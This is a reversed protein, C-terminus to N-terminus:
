ISQLCHEPSHEMDWDVDGCATLVTALIYDDVEIGEAQMRYMLKLAERRLGNKAYGVIMSKWSVLNRETMSDFVQFAESIYGCNAYMFVLASGVYVNSFAPTKNLSSHILRGQQINELRACAKLASSYTFPNPEVGEGLMEKLFELAEPEHGLGACVSIMATWSVVDRFPMEQLVKSALSYEMTLNNVYINRRKMIRFLSIAEEGLGNRALGAIISTWTVTNRRRMGDFVETSDAIEGCKAYMDVLSTGIFVDNKFIKKVITGHLQRGFKLEEEDGCANSVSCVTFENPAFGELLMRSFLLFADEGWGLQSCATIITTWSVVDHNPMRDFVRFAGVLDGCKAYLYVISSYNARVGSEIFERFFLLAEDDLESRLYGNLIATWSVVNRISMEDFVKRAEVLDGFRAYSSILNNDVFTGSSKLCKIAIAHLKRVEKVTCAQLGRGRDGISLNEGAGAGAGIGSPSEYGPGMGAGSRPDPIGVGFFGRNKKKDLYPPARRLDAAIVSILGSILDSIQTDKLDVCIQSLSLPSQSQSPPQSRHRHLPALTSLLMASADCVTISASLLCQPPVTYRDAANQVTASQNEGIRWDPPRIASKLNRQGCGLRLRVALGRVGRNADM